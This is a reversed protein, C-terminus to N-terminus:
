EEFYMGLQHKCYTENDEKCQACDLCAYIQAGVGVRDGLKISTVKSGVKIAHGIIEIEHKLTFDKLNDHDISVMDLFSRGTKIVGGAQRQTCMQAVFEV